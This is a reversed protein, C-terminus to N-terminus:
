MQKCAMVPKFGTPKCTNSNGVRFCRRLSWFSHSRRFLLSVTASLVLFQSRHVSPLFVQHPEWHVSIIYFLKRITCHFIVSGTCWELVRYTTCAAARNHPSQFFQTPWHFAQSGGLASNNSRRCLSPKSKQFTLTLILSTWSIFYYHFHIDWNPAPRWM